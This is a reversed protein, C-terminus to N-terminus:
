SPVSSAGNDRNNSECQGCKEQRKGKRSSQDRTDKDHGTAESTNTNHVRTALMKRAAIEGLKM